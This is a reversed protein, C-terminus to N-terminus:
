QTPQWESNPTRNRATIENSKTDTKCQGLTVSNECAFASVNHIADKSYPQKFSGKLRKGDIEVVCSDTLERFSQMWQAFCTQFQSM